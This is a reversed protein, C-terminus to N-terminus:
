VSFSSELAQDLATETYGFSSKAKSSDGTLTVDGVSTQKPSGACVNKIKDILDEVPVASGCINFIENRKAERARILPKAVDNVFTPSIARYETEVKDGSKIHDHLEKIYGEDVNKGFPFFVRATIITFSKAFFRLLLEAEYKTTAYFGRPNFTANEKILDGRGYVDGSSVYIFTAANVKRAWELLQLTACPNARHIRTFPGSYAEFIHYVHEIKRPLAKEIHMEQDLKIFGNKLKTKGLFSMPVGKPSPFVAYVSEGRKLLELILQEGIGFPSTVLNTMEM